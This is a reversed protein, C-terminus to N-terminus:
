ARRKLINARAKEFLSFYVHELAKESEKQKEPSESGIRHWTIKPKKIINM